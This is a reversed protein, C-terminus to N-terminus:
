WFSNAIVMQLMYLLVDNYSPPKQSPQRPRTTKVATRRSALKKKAVELCIKNWNISSFM